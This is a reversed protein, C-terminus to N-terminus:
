NSKIYNGNFDYCRYTRGEKLIIYTNNIEWFERNSLYLSSIYNCNEDYIRLNKDELLIFFKDNHGLYIKQGLYYSSHYGNPNYLSLRNETIRIEVIQSFLNTSFLIFLSLFTLKKFM